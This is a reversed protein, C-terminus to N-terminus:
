LPGRSWPGWIAFTIGPRQINVFLVRGRPDFCAGAFEGARYDRPAVRKGAARLQAEDLMVNNRAFVYPTGRATLGILRTGRAAEEAMGDNDECLLVGGRPSLTINDPNSAERTNAPVFLARLTDNRPDLQWVAGRGYGRRGAADIGATTDVVYLAGDRQWIGECRALRLAGSSWAQWFPGSVEDNRGSAEPLQPGGDPHNVRVPAADPDAIDIWELALTTDQAPARLDANPQGIVRAAQLRGGKEYAGPTGSRDGPVFRYLTCANRQDETLYAYNTRPDIAVAEHAFRGMAVIPTGSTARPDARVEFVYGHRRGGRASLDALTEECSLWTGWPTPGGACNWLTGGLSQRAGLFDHGRFRLTTTGGGPRKGEMSATDYQAPADIPDTVEGREHNRVLVIEGDGGGARSALVAMGDHNGPCPAGDDLADGTWSYSRYRFGPPLQLLALGTALDRTPRPAGYPGVQAGAAVAGHADHLRLLQAFSAAGALAGARLLRRRSARHSM